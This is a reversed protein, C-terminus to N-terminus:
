SEQKQILRYFYLDAHTAYTAGWRELVRGFEYGTDAAIAICALETGDLRMADFVYFALAKVIKARKTKSLGPRIALLEIRGVPWGICIQVAGLLEGQIEAVYWFPKVRSWNVKPLRWGAVTTQADLLAHIAEGEHDEAARVTFEWKAPWHTLDPKVFKQRKRRPPRRPGNPKSTIPAVATENQSM